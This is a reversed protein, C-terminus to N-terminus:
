PVVFMVILAFLGLLAVLGGFFVSMSKPSQGYEQRLMRINRRSEVAALILAVLGICVLATGFEKPGLLRKRDSAPALVDILKYVSFGFTILSAATRIWAQM